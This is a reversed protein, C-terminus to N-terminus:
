IVEKKWGVWEKRNIGCVEDVGVQFYRAMDYLQRVFGMEYISPRLQASKSPYFVLVNHASVALADVLMRRVLVPYHETAHSRYLKYGACFKDM